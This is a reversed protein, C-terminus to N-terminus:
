PTLENRMTHVGPEMPTLPGVDQITTGGIDTPNKQWQLVALILDSQLSLDVWLFTKNM